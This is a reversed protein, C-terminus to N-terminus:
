TGSEMSEPFSFCHFTIQSDLILQDAHLAVQVARQVPIMPFDFPAHHDVEGLADPTM